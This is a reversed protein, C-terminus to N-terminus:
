QSTFRQYDEPTDIDLLPAPDHWPVWTVPFRSFLVRGGVDGSLSLLADFTARSFLVPNGRQGDVMPAVIPACSHTQVEILKRILSVPIQPQDALLFLAAGSQTKVAELGARISSSQGEQWESNLVLTLPLGTLAARLETMSEGGVVVVPSLGATVAAQAVHEVLTKGKWPLLQKPQGFRRSGGAALIIGAVRQHFSFVEGQALAATVVIDYGSLLEGALSGGVSQLVSTDAQNLLVVSRANKPFNKLGGAPHLLVRILAEPSITENLTLGSLDAFIEPRHVWNSNLPKGLASLGAVVIVTDMFAPIPPEHSAPAKLPLRRSGDAEILLPVHHRDALVLIREPTKAILGSARDTEDIDGTLLTVGPPLDEELQALDEPDNVFFHQDALQLQDVALHTTATVLVASQFQRALQFIATTKGGAGVFAVRPCTPLSLTQILDV